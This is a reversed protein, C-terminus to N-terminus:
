KFITRFLRRVQKWLPLLFYIAMGTIFFRIPWLLLWVFVYRKMTITDVAIDKYIDPMAVFRHVNSVRGRIQDPVYPGEIRMTRDGNLWFRKQTKWIVRHLVPRNGDLMTWVLDGRKVGKFTCPLITVMDKGPRLLPYMSGGTIGIRSAKGMDLMEQVLSGYQYIDTKMRAEPM